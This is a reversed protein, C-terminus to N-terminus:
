MSEKFGVDMVHICGFEEGVANGVTISDLIGVNIGLLTNLGMGDSKGLLIDGDSWGVDSGDSLHIDDVIGVAIGLEMGLKELPCVPNM